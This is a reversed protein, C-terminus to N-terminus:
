TAKWRSRSKDIPDLVWTYHTTLQANHTTLQQGFEEGYISHDPYTAEILKRMASEAARDAITVPSSDGKAEVDGHAGFYPRIADGAADALQHAFTLFENM